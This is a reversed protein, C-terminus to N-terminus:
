VRYEGLDIWDDSPHPLSVTGRVLEGSTSEDSVGMRARPGPDMNGKDAAIQIAAKRELKRAKIWEKRKGDLYAMTEGGVNQATEVQIGYPPWSGFREKYQVAAWGKKYGNLDRWCQLEALCDLREGLTMDDGAQVKPKPNKLRNLRASTMKRPM